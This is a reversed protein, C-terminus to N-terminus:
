KKLQNCWWERWALVGDNVYNIYDKKTKIADILNTKFKDYTIDSVDRKRISEIILDSLIELNPLCLHNIRPDLHSEYFQKTNGGIIEKESIKLLYTYSRLFNVPNKSINFNQGSDSNSLVIFLCDPFQYAADKIASIYAEHNLQLVGWDINKLYWKIYKANHHYWEYSDPANFVMGAERPAQAHHYFFLRGPTSTVFIIIDGSCFVKNKVDNIFMRFSYETSSGGLAYNVIPRKMKNSVQRPWSMEHDDEGFSDGYVRITM